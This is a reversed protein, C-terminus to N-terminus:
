DSSQNRKFRKVGEEDAAVDGGRKRMLGSRGLTPFPTEGSESPSSPPDCIKKRRDDQPSALKAPAPSYPSSQHDSTPPSSPLIRAGVFATSTDRHSAESSITSSLRASSVYDWASTPYLADAIDGAPLIERNGTSYQAHDVSQGQTATRGRSDTRDQESSPLLPPSPDPSLSASREPRKTHRRPGVAQWTPDVYGEYWLTKLFLLDYPAAQRKMAEEVDVRLEEWRVLKDREQGRRRESTVHTQLRIARQAIWGETEPKEEEILRLTAKVEESNLTFKFVPLTQDLERLAHAQLPRVMDQEEVSAFLVKEETFLAFPLRDVEQRAADSCSRMYSSKRDTEAERLKREFRPRMSLRALPTREVPAEKREVDVEDEEAGVEDFSIEDCDDKLKMPECHDMREEIAFWKQIDNIVLEGNRPLTIDDKISDLFGGKRKPHCGRELRPLVNVARYDKACPCAMEEFNRKLNLNICVAAKLEAQLNESAKQQEETSKHKSQMMFVSADLSEIEFPEALALRDAVTDLLAQSSQVSPRAKM